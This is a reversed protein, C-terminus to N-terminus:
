ELSRCCACWLAAAPVTTGVLRGQSATVGNDKAHQEPNAFMQPLGVTDESFSSHADAALAVGRVGGTHTPRVDLHHTRADEFEGEEDDEGGERPPRSTIIVSRSSTNNNNSSSSDPRAHPREPAQAYYKDEVAAREAEAMRRTWDPEYPMPESCYEACRLPLPLLLLPPFFLLLMLTLLLVV